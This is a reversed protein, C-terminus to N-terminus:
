FTVEDYVYSRFGVLLSKENVLKKQFRSIIKDANNYIDLKLQKIELRQRAELEALKSIFKKFKREKEFDLQLKGDVKDIVKDVDTYKEQGIFNYKESRHRIEFKSKKLKYKSHVINLCTLKWLKCEALSTTLEFDFTPHYSVDFDSDSQVANPNDNIVGFLKIKTNKSPPLGKIYLHPYYQDEFVGMEAGYSIGQIQYKCHRFLHDEEMDETSLNVTYVTEMGRLIMSLLTQPSGIISSFPSIEKIKQIAQEHARLKNTKGILNFHKNCCFLPGADDLYKKALLVVLDKPLTEM